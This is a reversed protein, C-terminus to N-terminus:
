PYGMLLGGTAESSMVVERGGERGGERGTLWLLMVYKIAPVLSVDLRRLTGFHDELATAVERKCLLYYGRLYVYQAEM